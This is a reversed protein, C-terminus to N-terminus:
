FSFCHGNWSPQIPPQVKKWIQALSKLALITLFIGSFISRLFYQTSNLYYNLNIPYLQGFNEEM